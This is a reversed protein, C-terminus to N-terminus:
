ERYQIAIVTIIGQTLKTIQIEQDMRQFLPKEQQSVWSSGVIIILKGTPKLVRLMEKLVQHYSPIYMLVNICLIRDFEDNGFHLQEASHCFLEGQIGLKQFRRACQHLMGISPDVGVISRPIPKLYLWNIGTGIGVDLLRHERKVDLQALVKSRISHVKRIRLRSIVPVIADYFPSLLDFMRTANTRKM